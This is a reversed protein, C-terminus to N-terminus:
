PKGVRKAIWNYVYTGATGCSAPSPYVTKMTGRVTRADTFRGNIDRTTPFSGGPNTLTFTKGTLPGGTSGAGTSCGPFNNLLTTVEVMGGSIKFAIRMEYRTGNVKVAGVGAYTGPEPKFGHHHPKPAPQGSAPVAVSLLAALALLLQLRSKRLRSRRSTPDTKM